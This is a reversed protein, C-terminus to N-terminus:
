ELLSINKDTIDFKTEKRETEQKLEQPKSKSKIPRTSNPLPENITVTKTNPDKSKKVKLDHPKVASTQDQQTNYFNMFQELLLIRDGIGSLAQKNFM